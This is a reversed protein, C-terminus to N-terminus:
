KSSSGCRLTEESPEAGGCGIAECAPGEQQQQKEWAEEQQQQQQQQGVCTIRGDVKPAVVYRGTQRCKVCGGTTILDTQRDRNKHKVAQAWRKAFTAVKLKPDLLNLVQLLLAAQILLINPLQNSQLQHTQQRRLGASQLRPLM